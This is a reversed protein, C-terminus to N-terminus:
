RLPMSKESWLAECAQRACHRRGSRISPGARSYFNRPEGEAVWIKTLSKYLQLQVIKSREGATSHVVHNCRFALMLAAIAEFVWM